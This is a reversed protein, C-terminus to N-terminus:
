RTDDNELDLKFEEDLWWDEGEESVEKSDKLGKRKPEQSSAEVPLNEDEALDEGKEDFWLDFEDEESPIEDAEKPKVVPAEVLFQEKPFLDMRPVPPGKKGEKEEQQKQAYTVPDTQTNVIPDQNKKVTALSLFALILVVFFCLRKMM